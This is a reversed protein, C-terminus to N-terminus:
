AFIRMPDYKGLASMEESALNSYFNISDRTSNSQIQHTNEVVSANSQILSMELNLYAEYEDFYSSPSKMIEKLTRLCAVQDDAANHFVKQQNVDVAQKFATVEYKPDIDLFFNLYAKGKLYDVQSKLWALYSTAYGAYAM